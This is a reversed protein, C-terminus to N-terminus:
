NLSEGNSARLASVVRDLGPQRSLVPIVHTHLLQPREKLEKKIIQLVTSARSHAPLGASQILEKMQVLILGANAADEALRDPDQISAVMEDFCADWVKM